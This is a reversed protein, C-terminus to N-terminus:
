RSSPYKRHGDEEGIARGIRCAIEYGTIMAYILEKGSRKSWHNRRIAIAAPTIAICAHLDMKPAIGNTYEYHHGM